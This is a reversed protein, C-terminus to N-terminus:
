QHRKMSFYGEHIVGETVYEGRSRPHDGDAVAARARPRTNGALAPIIRDKALKNGIGKLIGRSLPSSGWGGPHARDQHGYEGRSRPHDQGRRCPPRCKRTNGALAPIIRRRGQSNHDQNRIGRSLPSSGDCIRVVHAPIRTNGALAPIIRGPILDEVRGFLIGRSLPSSGHGGEEGQGPSRTNGALAPIIGYVGGSVTAVSRIGRSLPSSGAGCPNTGPSREYEGRSRPHDPSARPAPAPESTNGALAPIIRAPLAAASGAKLIGRSLPSSGLDM